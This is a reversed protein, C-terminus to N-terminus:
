KSFVVSKNCVNFTLFKNFLLEAVFQKEKNAGFGPPHIFVEGIVIFDIGHPIKVKLHM